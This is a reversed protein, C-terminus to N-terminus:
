NDVRILTSPSRGVSGTADYAVSQLWYVGNPVTSTRWGALWAYTASTASAIRADHFSGGSLLVDMRTVDSFAALTIVVLVAGRVRQGPSPSVIRTTPALDQPMREEAYLAADETGFLSLRHERAVHVLQLLGSAFGPCSCGPLLTSDVYGETAKTGNATLRGVLQQQQKWISAQNFGDGNGIMMQTGIVFVVIVTAIEMSARRLAARTDSAAGPWPRARASLLTLYCGAPILLNFTTYHSSQAFPLGDRTRSITVLIAFLVGYATLAV